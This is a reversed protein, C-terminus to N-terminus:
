LFSRNQILYKPCKACCFDHEEQNKSSEVFYLEASNLWAEWKDKESELEVISPKRLTMYNVSEAPPYSWLSEPILGLYKPEKKGELYTVVFLTEGRLKVATIESKRRSESEVIKWDEESLIFYPESFAYSGASIPIKVSSM